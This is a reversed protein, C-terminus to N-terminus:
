EDDDELAAQLWARALRWERVVTSQSVGLALAAEDLTMGGFFRLELLRVKQPDLESLRDLAEDLAVLREDRQPGAVFAEDLEVRQRGGGRKDRARRRAHEVLIQRIARAAASWFEGSSRYEHHDGGLLRLYAEHILATPQLTHDSRENAMQRRAMARLERYLAAAVREGAEPDGDGARQLLTTFDSM